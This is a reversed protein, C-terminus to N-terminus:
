SCSCNRQHKQIEAKVMQVGRDVGRWDQVGGTILVYPDCYKTPISLKDGCLHMNCKAKDRINNYIYGKKLYQGHFKKGDETDESPLEVLSMCCARASKHFPDKQQMVANSQSGRPRHGGSCSQNLEYILRGRSGDQGVRPMGPMQFQLLIEEIFKRALIFEKSAPTNTMHEIEVVMPGGSEKNKEVVMNCNAEKRMRKYHPNDIPGYLHASSSYLLVVSFSTLHLTKIATNWDYILSFGSVM